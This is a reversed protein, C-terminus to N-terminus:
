RRPSSTVLNTVLEPVSWRMPKRRASSLFLSLKWPSPRLSAASSEGSSGPQWCRAEPRLLDWGESPSALTHLHITLYVELLLRDRGRSREIVNWERPTSPPLRYHM